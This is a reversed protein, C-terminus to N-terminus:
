IETEIDNFFLHNHLYRLAVARAGTIQDLAQTEM